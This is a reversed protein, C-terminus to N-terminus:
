IALSTRAQWETRQPVGSCLAILPADAVRLIAAARMVSHDANVIISAIHDLRLLVSAIKFLRLLEEGGLHIENSCSESGGFTILSEQAHKTSSLGRLSIAIVAPPETRQYDWGVTVVTMAVWVFM